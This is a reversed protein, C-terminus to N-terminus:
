DLYVENPGVPGGDTEVRDFDLAEDIRQAHEESTEGQISYTESSGNVKVLAYDEGNRVDYLMGGKDGVEEIEGAQSLQEDVSELQSVSM